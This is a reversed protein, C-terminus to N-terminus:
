LCGRVLRETGRRLDTTLNNLDRNGRGEGQHHLSQGWDTASYSLPLWKATVPTNVARLICDGRLGLESYQEM